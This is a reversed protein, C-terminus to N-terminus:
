GIIFRVPSLVTCAPRNETSIRPQSIREILQEPISTNYLAYKYKCQSGTNYYQIISHQDATSQPSLIRRFHKTMKFETQNLYTLAMENSVVSCGYILWCMALKYSSISTCMADLKWSNAIFERLGNSTYLCRTCDSCYVVTLQKYYVANPTCRALAVPSDPPNRYYILIHFAYTQLM